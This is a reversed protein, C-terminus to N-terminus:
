AFEQPWKSRIFLTFGVLNALFIPWFPTPKVNIRNELALKIISVPLALPDLRALM